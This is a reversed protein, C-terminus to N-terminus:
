TVRSLHDTCCAPVHKGQGLGRWQRHSIRKLKTTLARGYSKTAFNGAYLLVVCEEAGSPCVLLSLEETSSTLLIIANM